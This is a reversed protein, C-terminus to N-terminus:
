EKSQKYKKKLATNLLNRCPICYKKGNRSPPARYNEPSRDHGRKCFPQPERGMRGKKAADQSNEKATGLFLHDPNVCSAIDCAHCVYMGEPIAGRFLM